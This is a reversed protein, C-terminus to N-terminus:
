ENKDTATFVWVVNENKKILDIKLFVEQKNEVLFSRLQDFHSESDFYFRAHETEGGSNQWDMHFAKPIGRMPVRADSPEPLPEIFEVEGNFYEVGFYIIKSKPPLVFIPSWRYRETFAERWKLPLGDAKMRENKKDSKKKYDARYEALLERTEESLSQIQSVETGRFTGIEVMRGLGLAWVGMVSKSLWQVHVLEFYSKSGGGYVQPAKFSNRFIDTMKEQPLQADVEYVKDDEHSLWVVKMQSPLKFARENSSNILRQNTILLHVDKSNSGCAMGGINYLENDSGKLNLELSKLPLDDDDIEVRVDGKLLSNESTESYSLNWHFRGERSHAWSTM